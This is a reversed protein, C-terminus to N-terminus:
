QVINHTNLFSKSRKGRTESPRKNDVLVNVSEYFYISDITGVM